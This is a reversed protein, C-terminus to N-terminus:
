RTSTPCTEEQRESITFRIDGDQGDVRVQAPTGYHLLCGEILGLAFDGFPRPSHYHLVLSHQSRQGTWRPLEAGPFQARVAPHIREELNALLDLATPFGALLGPERAAFVAFLRQGFGRLLSKQPVGTAEGLAAVLAAFERWDYTGDARYPGRAGSAAAALVDDLVDIGHRREIMDLLERIVVGKM